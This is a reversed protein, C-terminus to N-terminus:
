EYVDKALAARTAAVMSWSKGASLWEQYSPYGMVTAPGSVHLMQFTRRRRRPLKREPSGSFFSRHQTAGRCPVFASPGLSKVFLRATLIKGTGYSVLLERVNLTVVATLVLLSWPRTEQQFRSQSSLLSREGSRRGCPCDNEQHSRWALLTVTWQKWPWDCISMWLYCIRLLPCSRSHAALPYNVDVFGCVTQLRIERFSWALILITLM